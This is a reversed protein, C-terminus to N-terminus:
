SAASSIIAALLDVQTKIPINPHKSNDIISMLDESAPTPPEISLESSYMTWNSVKWTDREANRNVIRSKATELDSTLWVLLVNYGLELSKEKVCALWDADNFHNLFPATCVVYKNGVQMNEIATDMLTKYELSKVQNVYIESERDDKSSGLAVLLAESLSETLTDKDLYSAQLQEAIAKGIFTKGSGPVGGVLILKKTM